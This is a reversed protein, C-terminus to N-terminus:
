GDRQVIYGVAQRTLDFEQAVQRRSEGDVLVRHVIEADRERRDYRRQRGHTIGGRRRQETTYGIGHSTPGGGSWIWTSVSRALRDVERVPLPRQFDVNCTQAYLRVAADWEVSTAPKPKAYGWFRVVDFLTNNRNGVRVAALDVPAREIRRTYPEGPEAPPRYLALQAPTVQRPILRRPFRAPYPNHVLAFLLEVAGDKWLKVYGRAGRVDGRAGQLEFKANGRPARDRYYLHEGRRSALQVLPPHAAALGETAGADVDLATTHLSWPVIGLDPSHLVTELAPRRTMYGRWLPRKGTLLVFHAGRDHLYTLARRSKESHPSEHNVIVLPQELM